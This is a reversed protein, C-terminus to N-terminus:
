ATKTIDVVAYRKFNYIFLIFYIDFPKIVNLLPSDLEGLFNKQLGVKDDPASVGNPISPICGGWCGYWSSKMVFHKAVM